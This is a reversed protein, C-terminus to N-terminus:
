RRFNWVYTEWDLLPIHASNYVAFCGFGDEINGAVTTPQASFFDDTYQVSVSRYYRYIAPAINRVRLILSHRTIIKEFLPNNEYLSDNRDPYNTNKVVAAYFNDPINEGNKALLMSFLYLDVNKTDMMKNGMNDELLLSVDSAGIGWWYEAAGNDSLETKMLDLALYNNIDPNKIDMSFPWYKEPYKGYTFGGLTDLYYNFTGIEMVNKKLVQVSTDMSVSVFPQAPMEASSVALPYGKVDAEIRYVSGPRTHIGDIIQRYGNKGWKWGDGFAPSRRLLFYPPSVTTDSDIATTEYVLKRSMDFPGPISLIIVGDEYLRIEGDRINESGFYAINPFEIEIAPSSSPEGFPYEVYLLNNYVKNHEGLSLGEVLRIDLVGSGGDLIATVSLKPPFNFLGIDLEKEMTMDCSILFFLLFIVIQSLKNTKNM